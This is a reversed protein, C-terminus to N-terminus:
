SRRNGIRASFRVAAPTARTPTTAQFRKAGTRPRSGGRGSNERLLKGGVSGTRGTKAEETNRIAANKGRVFGRFRFM